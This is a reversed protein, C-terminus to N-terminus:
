PSQLSVTYAWVRSSSVYFLSRGIFLSDLRTIKHGRFLNKEPFFLLRSFNASVLLILLNLIVIFFLLDSKNM